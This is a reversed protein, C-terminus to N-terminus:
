RGLDFLIQARLDYDRLDPPLGLKANAAVTELGEAQLRRLMFM